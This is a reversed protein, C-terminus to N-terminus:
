RRTARIMSVVAFGTARTKRRFAAEQTDTGPVSSVACPQIQNRDWTEVSWQQLLILLLFSVTLGASILIHNRNLVLDNELRKGVFFGLAISAIWMILVAIIFVASIVTGAYSPWANDGFVYVWLLGALAGFLLISIIGAIFLGPIGFLLSSLYRKKM